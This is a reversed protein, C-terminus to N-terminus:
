SISHRYEHVPGAIDLQKFHILSSFKFLLKEFILTILSIKSEFIVNISNLFWIIEFLIVKNLLAECKILKCIEKGKLIYLCYFSFLIDKFM